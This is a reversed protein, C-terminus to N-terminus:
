STSPHRFLPFSASVAYVPASLSVAREPGSHSFAFTLLPPTLALAMKQRGPGSRNAVKEPATYWGVSDGSVELWVAQLQLMTVRSRSVGACVTVEVAM